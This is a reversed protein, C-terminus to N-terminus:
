TCSAFTHRLDHFRFNEVGALELVTKFLGDVRQPGTSGTKPPFMREKGIAAPYRQFERALEPPCLYM